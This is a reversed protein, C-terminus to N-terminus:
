SDILVNPVWLAPHPRRCISKDLLLVFFAPVFLVHTSNRLHLWRNILVLLSDLLESQTSALIRIQPHKVTFLRNPVLLASIWVAMNGPFGFRFGVNQGQRTLCGVQRHTLHILGISRM